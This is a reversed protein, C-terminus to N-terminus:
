HILVNCQLDPYWTDCMMALPWLSDVVQVYMGAWFDYRCNQLLNEHMGM